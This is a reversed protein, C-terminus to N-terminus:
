HTPYKFWLTILKNISDNAKEWSVRTRGVYGISSDASPTFLRLTWAMTEGTSIDLLKRMISVSDVNLALVYCRNKEVDYYSVDYALGLDICTQKATETCKTKLEYPFKRDKPQSYGMSCVLILALTLFRKM